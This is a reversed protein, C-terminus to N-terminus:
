RSLLAPTAMKSTDVYHGFNMIEGELSAVASRLTQAGVHAYRETMLITSHGLLEQVARLPIGKAVLNTAFTHRLTHWGIKRV